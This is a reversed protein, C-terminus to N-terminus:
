CPLEFHLVAGRSVRQPGSGIGDWGAQDLIAALRALVDAIISAMSSM